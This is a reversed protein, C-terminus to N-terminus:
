GTSWGQWSTKPSASAALFVSRRLCSAGPSATEVHDASSFHPLHLHPIRVLFCCDSTLQLCSYGTGHAGSSWSAPGLRPCHVHAQRETPFGVISKRGLVANIMGAYSHPTSLHPIHPYPQPHLYAFASAPTCTCSHAHRHSGALCCCNAQGRLHMIKHWSEMVPVSSCGCGGSAQPHSSLCTSCSIVCFSVHLCTFGQGPRTIDQLGYREFRWAHWPHQSLQLFAADERSHM